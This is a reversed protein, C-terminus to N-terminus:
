GAIVATPPSAAAPYECGILNDPDRGAPCDHVPYMSEVLITGKLHFFPRLATFLLEYRTPIASRTHPQALSGPSGVRPESVRCGDFDIITQLLSDLTPVLTGLFTQRVREWISDSSSTSRLFSSCIRLSVM